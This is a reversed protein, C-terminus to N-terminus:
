SPMKIEPAAKDVLSIWAMDQALTSEWMGAHYKGLGQVRNAMGTLAPFIDRRHTFDKRSYIAIMQQWESGSVHEKSFMSLLDPSKFHKALDGCECWEDDKCELILETETCHLLRGSLLREQFCWGRSSLHHDEINSPRHNSSSKSRYADFRVSCPSLGDDQQLITLYSNEYINAMRASEVAWEAADDQVICLSDIWLYQLGLSRVIQIAERFAVPLHSCILRGKHEQLNEKVTAVPQSDQWCHSLTAYEGIENRPEYLWAERNSIKIVRSPLPM